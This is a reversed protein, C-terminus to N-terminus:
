CNVSLLKSIKANYRRLMRERMSVILARAMLFLFVIVCLGVQAM